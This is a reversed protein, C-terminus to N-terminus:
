NPPHSSQDETHHPGATRTAAAITVGILVAAAATILSAAAPLVTAMAAAVEPTLTTEHSAAALMTREGAAAEPAIMNQYTAAAAALATPDGHTTVVTDVARCPVTDPALATVPDQAMNAEVMVDTARRPRGMGIVAAAAMAAAQNMAGGAVMAGAAMAALAAVAGVALTPPHQGTTAAVTAAAVTATATTAAAGSMIVATAPLQAGTMMGAPLHGATAATAVVVVAGAAQSM